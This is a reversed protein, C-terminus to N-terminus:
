MIADKYYCLQGEYNLKICHLGGTIVVKTCYDSKLQFIVHVSLIAELEFEINTPLAPNESLLDSITIDKLKICQHVATTVHWIESPDRCVTNVNAGDPM